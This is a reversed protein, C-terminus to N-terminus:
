AERCAHEESWDTGDIGLDGADGAGFARDDHLGDDGAGALDFAGVDEAAWGHELVGGEVGDAGGVIVGVQEVALGGLDFGGDGDM